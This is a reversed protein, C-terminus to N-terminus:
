LANISPPPLRSLPPPPPPAPSGSRAASQRVLAGLHDGLAHLAQHLHRAIQRCHNLHQHAAHRASERVTARARQRLKSLARRKPRLRVNARLLASTCSTICTVSYPSDLVCTSLKLAFLIQMNKKEFFNTSWKKKPERLSSKELSRRPPTTSSSAALRRALPAVNSAGVILSMRCCRTARASRGCSPRRRTWARRPPRAPPWLATSAPRIRVGTGPGRDCGRGVRRVVSGHVRFVDGHNLGAFSKSLFM